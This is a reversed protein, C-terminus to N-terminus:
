RQVVRCFLGLTKVQQCLNNAAVRDPFGSAYLRYFQGKGTVTVLEEQMTLTAMETPLRSMFLQWGKM